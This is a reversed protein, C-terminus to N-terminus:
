AKKIGKQWEKIQELRNNAINKIDNVCYGICEVCDIAQQEMNEQQMGLTIAMIMNNLKKLHSSVTELDDICGTLELEEDM